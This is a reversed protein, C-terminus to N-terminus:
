ALAAQVVKGSLIQTELGAPAAGVAVGLTKGLSGLTQEFAIDGSPSGVGTRADIATAGYDGDKPAVGGVVGGRIGKGIMVACSHNLNHDRGNSDGVMTRGFVNLSLFTVKDALGATALKQFMVRLAGLSSVLDASEGALNADIHNDGGFPLHISVVPAVKMRIMLVAATIDAYPDKDIGALEGLIDQSISRAQQQSIAYRDLFKKHATTGDRRALDSLRKMDNDRIKELSTLPGAPDVLLDRLGVPSMIPLPRGEFSLYESGPDGSINM